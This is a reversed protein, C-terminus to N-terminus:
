AAEVTITLRDHEAYTKSAALDAVIQDGPFAVGELADKVLKVINDLDPKTPKWTGVAAARRKASWSAPPAYEAQVYLRVPGTIYDGRALTYEQRIRAEFARTKTPTFTGRSTIRARAKGPCAIDIVVVTM